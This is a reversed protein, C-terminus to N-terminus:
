ARTARGADDPLRTYVNEEEREENIRKNMERKERWSLKREPDGLDLDPLPPLAGLETDQAQSIVGGMLHLLLILISPSLHKM